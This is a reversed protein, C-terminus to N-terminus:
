EKAKLVIFGQAEFFRAADGSKLFDFFDAATASAKVTLAMPYVIPPHSDAPFTAVIKVDPDSVADTKYVVGLPAEGRSVLLLAARVSEAQALRDSVSTWLGLRELAAKAYKGAPVSDISGVALRGGGLAKAIGGPANLDVSAPGDKPAVLVLSNGLLDVRTEQRILGKGALYDMWDLDASIFIDAPADQEIQKALTSSAAYSAKVPVGSRNTWSAAAADIANKTSAAAFVVVAAGSEALCRQFPFVILATLAFTLTFLRRSTM